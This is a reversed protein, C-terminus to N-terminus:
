SSSAMKESEIQQAQESGNQDDKIVEPVKRFRAGADAFWKGKRGQVECGSKTPHTDFNEKDNRAKNDRETCM